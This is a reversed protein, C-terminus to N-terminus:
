SLILGNVVLYGDATTITVADCTPISLNYDYIVNNGDFFVGDTQTLAYDIMTFYDSLSMIRFSRYLVDLALPKLLLSYDYYYFNKLVSNCELQGVYQVNASNFVDLATSVTKEEIKPIWYSIDLVGSSYSSTTQPETSYVNTSSALAVWRLLSTVTYPSFLNNTYIDESFLQGVAVYPTATTVSVGTVTTTGFVSQVVDGVVLDTISVYVFKDTLTDLKLVQHSAEINFTQTMGDGIYCNELSSYSLIDYSVDVNNCVTVASVLGLLALLAIARM